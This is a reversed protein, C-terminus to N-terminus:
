RITRVFFRGRLSGRSRRQEPPGWSIRCASAVASAVPRGPIAGMTFGTMVLTVGVNHHGESNAAGRLGYRSGRLWVPPVVHDAVGDLDVIQM